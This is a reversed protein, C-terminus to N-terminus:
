NVNICTIYSFLSIQLYFVGYTRKSSHFICNTCTGSNKFFVKNNVDVDIEETQVTVTMSGSDNALQYTNGVTVLTLNTESDALNFTSGGVTTSITIAPVTEGDVTTTTLTKIYYTNGEVINSTGTNGYFKIPSNIVLDSTDEVVVFDGTNQTLLM